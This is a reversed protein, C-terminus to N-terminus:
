KKKYEKPTMGDHTRSFVSIFHSNSSYRLKRSIRASSYSTTLLLREAEKMKLKEIYKAVSIGIEKKFKTSFSERTYGFHDAIEEVTIRQNLNTEIYHLARSINHSLM